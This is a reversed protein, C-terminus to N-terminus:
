AALKCAHRARQCIAFDRVSGAQVRDRRCAPLKGVKGMSFLMSDWRISFRTKLGARANAFFARMPLKSSYWRSYRSDISRGSLNQARSAFSSTQCFGHVSRRRISPATRSITRRRCASRRPSNGRDADAVPRRAVLRRDDPFALRAVFARQGILLQMAFDAAERVHQLSVAIRFPSRTM